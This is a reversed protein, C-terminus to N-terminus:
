PGAAEGSLLADAGRAQLGPPEGVSQVAGCVMRPPLNSLPETFGVLFSTGMSVLIVMANPDMSGANEAAGPSM